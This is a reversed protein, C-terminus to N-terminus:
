SHNNNFIYILALHYLVVILERISMESLVPGSENLCPKILWSSLLSSCKSSLSLCCACEWPGKFLESGDNMTLGSLVIGLYSISSTECELLDCLSFDASLKSSSNTNNYVM